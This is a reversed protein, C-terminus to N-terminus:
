AWARRSPAALRPRGLLMLAMRLAMPSAQASPPALTPSEASDIAPTGVRAFLRYFIEQVVDDLEADRGLGRVVIGRVMPTFRAWAETPAWSARVLLERALTVDDMANAISRRTCPIRWSKWPAAGAEQRGM